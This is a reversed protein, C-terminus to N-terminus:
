RWWSGSGPAMAAISVITFEAHVAYVLATVAIFTLGVILTLKRSGFAPHARAVRCGHLPNFGDVASILLTIVTLSMGGVNVEGTIPVEVTRTDDAQAPQTEM